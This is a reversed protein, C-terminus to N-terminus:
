PKQTLITKHNHPILMNSITKVEYIGKECVLTIEKHQQLTERKMCTTIVCLYPQLKPNFVITLFSNTTKHQLSNALKLLREYYVGMRENKEQKLDKLQLYVQEDNQVPRFWKCFALQLKAFICKPYDGMYNNCQNFM